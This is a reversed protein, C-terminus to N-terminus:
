VESVYPKEIECWALYNDLDIRLCIDFLSQQTVSKMNVEGSM